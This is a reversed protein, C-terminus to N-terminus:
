YLGGDTQEQYSSVDREVTDDQDPVMNALTSQVQERLEKLRADEIQLRPNGIEKALCQVIMHQAIFNWFEPFDILDSETAPIAASRIYWCLVTPETVTLTTTVGTALAAQTLTLTSGSIDQIRTGTPIGTGSIYYGVVLNTTSSLNSVTTSGLTLDGTLSVVTTVERSRPYFRLKTGSRADNNVHMYAYDDAPEYRDMLAAVEFRKQIRIRPIDYVKSGSNYVLRLIKNGYINAPMDYDAKNVSLAIPANAVFYQDEINLKHVEAECFKIAEECYELLEAATIFSEEQLDLKKRVFGSIFDYTKYSSM